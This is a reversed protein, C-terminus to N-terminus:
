SRVTRPPSHRPTDDSGSSAWRGIGAPSCHRWWGTRIWGRRAALSACPPCRPGPGHHTRTSAGPRDRVTASYRWGGRAVLDLLISRVEGAGTATISATILQHLQSAIRQSHRVAERAEQQLRRREIRDSVDRAANEANAVDDPAFGPEVDGAVYSIAGIPGGQGTLPTVMCRPLGGEPRKPWVAAKGTRRVREALKALTPVRDLLRNECELSEPGFHDARACGSHRLGVRRLEGNPGVVDVACWEAFAPVALDLLPAVITAYDESTMSAMLGDQGDDEHRSRLKDSLNIRPTTHSAVTKRKLRDRPERDADDSRPTM